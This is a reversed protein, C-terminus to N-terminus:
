ILRELCNYAEVPLDLKALKKLLTSHRVTDFAKSFDLAVVHVYPYYTQMDTIAQLMAIIAATTSGTPIFAFQDSFNLEPPPHLLSPYIFKRAIHREM